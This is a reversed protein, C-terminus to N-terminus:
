VRALHPGACPPFARAAERCSGVWGRDPECLICRARLESGGSLGSRLYFAGSGSGGGLGAM